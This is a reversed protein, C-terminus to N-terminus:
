TLSLMGLCQSRKFPSHGKCSDFLAPVLYDRANSSSMPLLSSSLRSFCDGLLGSPLLFTVQFGLAGLKPDWDEAAQTCSMM